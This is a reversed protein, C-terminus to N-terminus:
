NIKENLNNLSLMKRIIDDDEYGKNKLELAIKINSELNNDSKDKKAEEFNYNDIPIMKEILKFAKEIENNDKHKNNLISALIPHDRDIKLKKNGYNNLISWPTRIGEKNTIPKKSYNLNKLDSELDKVIANLKNRIMVPVRVKTKMLNIKWDEDFEGDYNIKIRLRNYKEAKQMPTNGIELWDGPIILRNKRYIYFGQRDKWDGTVGGAENYLRKSENILTQKSPLIYPKVSVMSGKYDIKTEPYPITEQHDKLFPDWSEIINTDDTVTNIHININNMMESFIMALHNKTRERIAIIPVHATRVSLTQSDLLRDLNEWIVITGSELSELRSIHENMNSTFEKSSELKDTEFIHNADVKRHSVKGNKKTIVTLIDCHALSATKLGFGFKGLDNKTRFKDFEPGWAMAKNTLEEETMGDGDDMISIYKASSQSSAYIRFVINKANKSISNDIIDAVSEEPSYGLERITYLFGRASFKM